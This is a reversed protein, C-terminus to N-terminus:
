RRRPAPRGLSEPDSRKGYAPVPPTGIDGIQQLKAIGGNGFTLNKGSGDAIRSAPAASLLTGGTLLLTQILQRFMKM